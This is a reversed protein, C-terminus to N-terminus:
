EPRRLFTHFERDLTEYSVGLRTKLTMGTASKLRGRYADRVYDLFSERYREDDAQMLFVALAMGEAYNLYVDERDTFANQGLQVLRQIPLLTGAELHRKALAIRPGVVGGVSLSGDPEQVITEFYTGLGEFVWYNGVNRDYANPGASEFLLQHSVEHYLTASAEIQGDPDRYFYAPARKNKGSKAPVYLGLSNEYGPGHATMVHELYESKDHFYYVLHVPSPREGTLKKDKIRQALPLRSEDIILDPVLAFFLQHFLELQRAFAIAESLPVNAQILFHETPIRWCSEWREHLRDAEDTPLWRPPGTGRNPAPLEGAELHPIWSSDVWGFTPHSVRHERLMSVAYPTAWGGEHAVYGLLRRTEAHNPQRELVMRLTEDALAFQKGSPESAARIALSTLLKASKEVIKRLDTPRNEGAGKGSTPGNALGADAKPVVEPLPVFRTAADKDRARWMRRRVEDATKKDGAKELRDALAELEGSEAQLVTM